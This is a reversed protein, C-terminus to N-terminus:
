TWDFGVRTSRGSCQDPKAGAGPVLPIPYMGPQFRRSGTGGRATDREGPEPPHRKQREHNYASKHIPGQRPHPCPVTTGIGQPNRHKLEVSMTIRRLADGVTGRSEIGAVFFRLM